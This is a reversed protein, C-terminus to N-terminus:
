FAWHAQIITYAQRLDEAVALAMARTEEDAPYLDPVQICALGARWAAEVGYRSDELVVAEKKHVGTERLVRLYIEPDPKRHKVEDGCIIEPFLDAVGAAALHELTAQRFTTTALATRVGRQQFALVTERAYPRLPIPGQKMRSRGLRAALHLLKVALPQDQVLNQIVRDADQGTLGVIKLFLDGGHDIGLQLGAEQWAQHWIEETDLLLGDADFIVLSLKTKTM